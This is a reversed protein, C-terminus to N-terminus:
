MSLEHAANTYHGMAARGFWMAIACRFTADCKETTQQVVANCVREATNGHFNDSKRNGSGMPTLYLYVGACSACDVDRTECFKASSACLTHIAPPFYCQCFNCRRMWCSPSTHGGPGPKNTDLREKGRVTENPAHTARPLRAM